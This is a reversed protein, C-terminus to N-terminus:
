SAAMKSLGHLFVDEIKMPYYEQTRQLQGRTVHHSARESIHASFINTATRLHSLCPTSNSCPKSSMFSNFHRFSLMPFEIIYECFYVHLGKWSYEALCKYCNM